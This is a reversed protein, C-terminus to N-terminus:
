EGDELDESEFGNTAACQLFTDAIVKTEESEMLNYVANFLAQGILKQDGAIITKIKMEGNELSEIEILFKSKEM